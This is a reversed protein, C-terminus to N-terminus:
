LHNFFNIITSIALYGGAIALKLKFPALYSLLRSFASHNDM